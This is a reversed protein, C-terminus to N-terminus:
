VQTVADRSRARSRRHDPADEVRPAPDSGSTRPGCLWSSRCHERILRGQARHRGRGWRQQAPARSTRPRHSTAVSGRLAGWKWAGAGEDDVRSRRPKPWGPTERTSGSRGAGHPGKRGPVKGWRGVSPRLRASALTRSRVGFHRQSGRSPSGHRPSGGVRPSSVPRQVSAGRGADCCRSPKQSRLSAFEHERGELVSVVRRRALRLLIRVKLRVKKAWLKDGVKDGARFGQSEWTRWLNDVGGTRPCRAM